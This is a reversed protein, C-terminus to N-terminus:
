VPGRVAYGARRLAELEVPTASVIESVSMSMQDVAEGSAVGVLVPQGYRSASSKTTLKAEYEYGSLTNRLRM